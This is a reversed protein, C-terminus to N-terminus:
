GADALVQYRMGGSLDTVTVVVQRVTTGAHAACSFTGGPKVVLLAPGPCVVRVGPGLPQALSAALHEEALKKPVVASTPQLRARDHAATVTVTVELAQGDLRTTCDLKAGVRPVVHSPCHVVPRPIRYNAALDRAITVELDGASLTARPKM